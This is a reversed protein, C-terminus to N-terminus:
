QLNKKLQDLDITQLEKDKTGIFNIVLKYPSEEQFVMKAIDTPFITVHGLEKSTKFQDKNYVLYILETCLITDLQLVDFNYNYGKGVQDLGRKLQASVESLDDFEGARRMVMVEDINLFHEITNIQVGNILAELIVKGSEIASHYPIISPDNWMGNELLQEKTGLYIGGHSFHGPIFQSSLTFPTRCLVIDMPKLQDKLLQTAKENKYLTGNRLRLPTAVNGVAFSLFSTTNNFAAILSDTLGHTSLNTQNKLLEKIEHAERGWENATDKRAISKLAAKMMRRIRGDAHYFVSYFHDVQKLLLDHAKLEILRTNIEHNVILTHNMEYLDSGVFDNANNFKTLLQQQYLSSQQNFEEAVLTIVEINQANQNLQIEIKSLNEAYQLSDFDSAQLSGALVILGLLFVLTKM